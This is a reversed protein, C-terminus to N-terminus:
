GWVPLTFCFITQQETTEIQLISQHQRLILSAIHLSSGPYFSPDTTVTDFYIGSLKGTIITMSVGNNHAEAQIVPTCNKTIVPIDLPAILSHLIRQLRHSSRLLPLDDPMIVDIDTIYSLERLRIVVHRVIDLLAIKQWEVPGFPYRAYMYDYLHHWCDTMVQNRKWIQELLERQDDTLSGCHGELLLRVYGLAPTAATLAERRWTAFAEWLEKEQEKELM